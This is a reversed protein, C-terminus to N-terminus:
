QPPAAVEDDIVWDWDSGNWLLVVTRRAGDPQVAWHWRLTGDVSAGEGSKAGTPVPPLQPRAPKSGCAATRPKVEGGESSPVSLADGADYVWKWGGNTQRKWVTTFYGVSKGFERVWPGTNVAISGDCSVFSRGPWWFVPVPPEKRGDLFEHANVPQPVFMLADLTSWKRFAAWQGLKWADAAFAREADVATQPAVPAAAAQAALLLAAIM